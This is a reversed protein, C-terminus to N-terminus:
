IPGTSRGPASPFLCFVFHFLRAWLPVRIGLRSIKLGTSYRSGKTFATCTSNFYSKYMCISGIGIYVTRYYHLLAYRTKYMCQTTNCIPIHDKVYLYWLIACTRYKSEVYLAAYCLVHDPVANPQTKCTSLAGPLDIPGICILDLLANMRPLVLLYM